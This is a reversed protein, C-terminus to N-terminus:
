PLCTANLARVPITPESAIPRLSNCLGCSLAMSPSPLLLTILANRIDGTVEVGAETATISGCLYARLAPCV